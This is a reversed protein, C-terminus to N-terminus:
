RNFPFEQVWHFGRSTLLPAPARTATVHLQKGAYPADVVLHEGSRRYHWLESTETQPNTVVILQAAPVVQVLRPEGADACNKTWVGWEGIILKCWRREDGAPYTTSDVAFTDIKWIGTLETPPFQYEGAM